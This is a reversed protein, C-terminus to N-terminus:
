AVRAVTLGITTENGESRAFVTGGHMVAIAKVIALGLGHSNGSDTRSSDVRYFRDFLRDLHHAAIPIGRNSVTISVGQATEAIRIVIASERDCHQIANYLLNTIARGFLSREILAEADGEIKLACCADELLMDLFEASKAVEKAISTRVLNDARMGRDAQALFLMDNIITRLRELEELNSQLVEELEAASRERSLIVQTQGILNGLPTRLEHAVDANFTSLQMYAQEVRDLAGNFSLVLGALEGPLTGGVPLREGLNKPSLEQAHRSLCDVANLGRRAIWWGLGAVATVGFLSAVVLAVNLVHSTTDFAEPDVGVTLKVTPRDGLPPVDGSLTLYARDGSSIRRVGNGEDIIRADPPFPTGLRYAPNDSEVLYMIRGSPPTMEKLKDELLAWKQTNEMRRAILSEVFEFRTLIEQRQHRHLENCQVNYLVVGVTFFVAGAALAFMLALRRAISHTTQVAATGAATVSSTASGKMSNTANSM